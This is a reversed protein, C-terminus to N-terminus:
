ITGEKNAGLEPPISRIHIDRQPVPIEINHENLAKALRIHLDHVVPLRHATESVYASISFKLASDDFSMLLVSPEPTELVFPTASVTELMVKHALEIDSGYAIGVYFGVRTTRDSLSWNVLQNTIFNKNPVILEKQDFDIITTARMHIRSVKGSVEGITVIDGVRIPREFLLIIGSVFNAFIEQLGFGLGVSLAAVLWQVQSWSFGLENAVSFFGITMLVYKALQNVAYRSGIEMSIHRFILLEMVGSFNRVAVVTIFTYVGALLLNILTVAQFIEKNDIVVKNQWLEIRELFSFAPLINKWIVWFGIILAFSFLVNLIKITQANIKPIDIQEVDAPLVPEEPDAPSLQRDIQSNTGLQLNKIALQQNVIGLWRFVVEYPISMLFISWLTVMLKQQLEVASLYYGALSFGTIILPTFIVWYSIYRSKAIWGGPHNIVSQQTLGHKPHLLQALAIVVALININLAIRGLSDSYLPVDMALTVKVLFTCPVFVFRLWALQRRIQNSTEDQWQFHKRMVGSPEFLCYFFQFLFWTVAVQEFGIGITQTFRNSSSSNCLFWGIYATTLPAPAARIVSYLLAEITYYFNDSYIKGVRTSIHQLRQKARNKALLLISISVIALLTLFFNKEFSDIANNLM